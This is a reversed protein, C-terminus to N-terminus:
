PNTDFRAAPRGNGSRGDGIQRLRYNFRSDELIHFSSQRSRQYIRDALPASFAAMERCSWLTTLITPLGRDYRQELIEAALNVDAETPRGAAQLFGDILLVPCTSLEQLRRERGESPGDQRKLSALESRWNMYRLGMGKEMLALATAVALHTKGCGRQGSLLLWGEPKQAYDMAIRKMKDLAPDDPHFSDYSSQKALHEPIGSNIVLQDIKKKVACDCTFIHTTGDEERFPYWGLGKCRPCVGEEPESRVAYKILEQTRKIFHNDSSPKAFNMMSRM